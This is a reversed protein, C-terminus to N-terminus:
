PNWQTEGSPDCSTYAMWAWGNNSAPDPYTVNNYRENNLRTLAESGTAGIAFAVPCQDQCTGFWNWPDYWACDFQNPRYLNTVWSYAVSVYHGDHAVDSYDGNFSSSIWMLGHFGDWQHARLSGSTAPDEMADPIGPLNDDDASYCSSVHLFEIYSDGVRMETGPGGGDIDCSDPIAADPVRMTGAWHDGADSGHTAIIAADMWDVGSPNPSQYDRCDLDYTPDCFRRITMNGDIYRYRNSAPGQYHGHVGMHDWWAQAMGPWSARDGGGCGAPGPVFDGIAYMGVYLASASQALACGAVLACVQLARALYRSKGM